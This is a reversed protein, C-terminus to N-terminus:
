IVRILAVTRDCYSQIVGKENEDALGQNYLLEPYAPIQNIPDIWGDGVIFILCFWFIAKIELNLVRNRIYM